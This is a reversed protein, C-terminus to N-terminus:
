SFNKEKYQYRPEIQEVKIQDCECKEILLWCGRCFNDPNSKGKKARRRVNMKRSQVRRCTRCRRYGESDTKDYPHGVPCVTIERKYNYHRGRDMMDKINDAQTGLELHDPNVCKRNDCKHRVLKGEPIEGFNVEWAARHTRIPTSPNNSILGYGTTKDIYGTFHVCGNPQEEQKEALRQPLTRNIM